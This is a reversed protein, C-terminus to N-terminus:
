NSKQDVLVFSYDVNFVPRKLTKRERERERERVSFSEETVLSSGVGIINPSYFLSSM